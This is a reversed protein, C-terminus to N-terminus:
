GPTPPRESGHGQDRQVDRQEPRNESMRRVATACQQDSPLTAGVPLTNFRGTPPTTTPPATTPPATTPPATTPPATTPPTTTGVLECGTRQEGNLCTDSRAATAACSTPVSEATSTTTARAATSATTATAAVCATMEGCAPSSTTAVAAGSSTTARPESSSTTAPRAASRRPAPAACRRHPRSTPPAAGRRVVDAGLAVVIGTVLLRSSGRIGPLRERRSAAIRDLALAKRRRRSPEHVSASSHRPTDHM